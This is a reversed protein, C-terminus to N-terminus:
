NKSSDVWEAGPPLYFKFMQDPVAPNKKEGQFSYQLISGDQGKVELQKIRFDPAALFTVETFPLKDSKPFATIRADLGEMSAHYESFDEAFNLKGLLFALPARLDEAEKVNLKEARNEESNYYYFFQGDSVFLKGAPNTYQWRM